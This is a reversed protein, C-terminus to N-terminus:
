TNNNIYIIPIEYWVLPRIRRVVYTLFNQSFNIDNM